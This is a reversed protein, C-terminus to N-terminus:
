IQSNIIENSKLILELQIKENLRYFYTYIEWKSWYFDEYLKEYDLFPKIKEVIIEPATLKTVLNKFYKIM